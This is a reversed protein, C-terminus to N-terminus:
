MCDYNTGEVAILSNLGADWVANAVDECFDIWDGWQSNTVDHPENFVDVFMANWVGASVMAEAITRWTGVETAQNITYLGDMWNGPTKSHMDLMVFLGKDGASKVADVYSDLGGQNIFDSSFPMRIANFGRDLMWDFYWDMNHIDLGYLARNLKLVM